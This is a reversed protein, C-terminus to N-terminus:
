VGVFNMVEKLVDKEYCGFKLRNDSLENRLHLKIYGEYTSIDPNAIFEALATPLEEYGKRSATWEFIDRWKNLIRDGKSSGAIDHLFDLPFVGGTLPKWQTGTKFMVGYILSDFKPAFKGSKEVRLEELVLNIAIQTLTPFWGARHFKRIAENVRKKIELLHGIKTRYPIPISFILEKGSSKWVTANLHGLVSLSFDNISVKIPTGESYQKKLLVYERVGKTAALEMSQYLTELGGGVQTPFKLDEFYALLDKINKADKVNEIVKNRSNERLKRGITLFVKNWAQDDGLYKHIEELRDFNSERKSEILYFGGMDSVVGDGSLTNVIIGLGYARSVDFFEWGTKPLFYRNM